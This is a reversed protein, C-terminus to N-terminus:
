LTKTDHILDDPHWYCSAGDSNNPVTVRFDTIKWVIGNQQNLRFGNIYNLAERIAILFRTLNSTSYSVLEGFANDVTMYTIEVGVRLYGCVDETKSSTQVWV